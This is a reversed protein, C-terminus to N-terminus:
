KKVATLETYGILNGKKNYAESKVLGVGKAYWVVSKTQIKFLTKFELDESIKVCDFTGASTTVKEIAEVKRNSVTITQNLMPNETGNVLTKLKLQGGQLTQGVQPRAPIEIFDGEAKVEFDKMNSMQENNALAFSGFQFKYVGGECKAQYNSNGIKKNKKLDTTETQLDLMTVGGVVSEGVVKHVVKSEAQKNKNYNTLEMEAGKRNILYAECNQAQGFGVNLLTLGVIFLLNKFFIQM